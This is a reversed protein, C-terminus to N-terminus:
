FNTFRLYKSTKCFNVMVSSVTLLISCTIDSFNQLFSSHLDAVRNILSCPNKMEESPLSKDIKGILDASMNIGSQFIAGGIRYFMASLFDIFFFINQLFEIKKNKVDSPFVM